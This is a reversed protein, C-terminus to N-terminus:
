LIKAYHNCTKVDDIWIDAMTMVSGFEFLLESETALEFEKQYWAVGEYNLLRLENNWCSPVIVNEADTLGNFWCNDIGINDPDLKFKWNGNLDVTKRTKHEDFLRRM